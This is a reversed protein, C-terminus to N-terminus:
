REEKKVKKPKKNVKKKKPPFFDAMTLPCSPNGCMPCIRTTSKGNM